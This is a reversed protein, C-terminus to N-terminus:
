SLLKKMEYFLLPDTTIEEISCRFRLTWNSPLVVGPINIREDDPNPWVFKPVLALFESLLNIHFLSSSFLSEKLIEIRQFPTIQPSYTWGKQKVYPIVEEPFDRWWQELTPSDHTSICTLSLAPYDLPDIFEQDTEWNREWRMVKTGPIGLTQLIPRVMCPVVGLDEAIPLMPSFQLLIELIEQGHPGWLSEDAPVFYGDSTAKGLPIGWIRFLGIVHDIRYLDYFHSAYSLRQRWWSFHHKKIVVWQFLPFGWNQGEKCYQDPPSGASLDLNFFEPSSWVDASNPSILIPIDGKLYVKKELAYAKVEKLQAFCLYQLAKQFSVEKEHEKMLLSFAEKSVYKYDDPWASLPIHDMKQQLAKFLAYASLWPAEEEFLAFEQSRLIKEGQEAFYKELLRQKKAYVSAFAIRPSSSLLTLEEVHIGPLKHLSLYIPHLACSSLANYPSPDLGSDNLPLLQIVDMGLSHCWDILPLLDFFEGIGCSQKSWLASLPLSIGRHSFLGIRQWQSATPSQRIQNKWEDM